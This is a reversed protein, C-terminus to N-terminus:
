TNRNRFNFIDQLLEKDDFRVTLHMLYSIVESFSLFGYKSKFEDLQKKIEDDLAINKTM